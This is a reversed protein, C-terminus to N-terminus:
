KPCPQPLPHQEEYTIAWPTPNLAAGEYHAANSKLIVSVVRSSSSSRDVAAYSAEVTAAICRSDYSKLDTVAFTRDGPDQRIQLLSGALAQHFIQLEAGLQPEWYISTLDAVVSVTVANDKKELREANGYVHNLAKLVSNVYAVTIVRPIAYPNAPGTTAPTSAPPPDAAHSPGSCAPVLLILLGGLTLYIFKM